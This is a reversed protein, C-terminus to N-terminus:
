MKYPIALFMTQVILAPITDLFAFVQSNASTLGMQKAYAHYVILSYVNKAVNALQKTNENRGMTCAHHLSDQSQSSIAQIRKQAVDVDAIRHGDNNDLQFLPYHLGLWKQSVLLLFQDNNYPSKVDRWVLM